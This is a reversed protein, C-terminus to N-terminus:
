ETEVYQNVAYEYEFEAYFLNASDKRRIVKVDHFVVPFLNGGIIEYVEKSEFFEALYNAIEGSIYGSRATINESHKVFATKKAPLELVGPSQQDVNTIEFESITESIGTAMFTDYGALSNAFIFQHEALHVNYDMVYTHTGSVPEMSNMVTVTYYEIIKGPYNLNTYDGLNLISYGVSFEIVQYASLESTQQNPIYIATSGDTFHLGIQLSLFTGGQPHWYVLFYLKQVMYPMTVMNDPAFTLFARETTIWEMLSNWRAYFSAKKWSPIKGKLVYRAELLGEQAMNEGWNENTRIKYQKILNTRTTWPVHGQEPFHFQKTIQLGQRLYEGLDVDVSGLPAPYLVDQGLYVNGVSYYPEVYLVINETGVPLNTTLRFLMPNDCLSVLLPKKSFSIM